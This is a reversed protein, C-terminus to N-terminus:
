HSYHPDPVADESGQLSEEAATSVRHGSRELPERWRPDANEDLKFRLTM